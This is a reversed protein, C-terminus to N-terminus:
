LTFIPSFNQFPNAMTTELTFQTVCFVCALLLWILRFGLYNFTEVPSAAERQDPSLGGKESTSVISWRPGIRMRVADRELQLVSMPAYQLHRDSLALLVVDDAFM